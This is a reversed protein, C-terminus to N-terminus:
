LLLLRAFFGGAFTGFGALFAGFGAGAGLLFADGFGAGILGAAFLRLLQHGFGFRFAGGFLFGRQFAGGLLFGSGIFGAAGTIVVRKIDKM